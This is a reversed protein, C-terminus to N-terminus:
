LRQALVFSRTAIISKTHYPAAKSQQTNKYGSCKWTINQIHLIAQVAHTDMTSLIKLDNISTVELCLKFAGNVNQILCTTNDSSCTKTSLM